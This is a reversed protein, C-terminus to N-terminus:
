RASVPAGPTPALTLLLDLADDINMAKGDREAARFAEADLAAQADTRIAEARHAMYTQLAVGKRALDDLVCCLLRVATEHHGLRSAADAGSIVMYPLDFGHEQQVEVARRLHALAQALEGLELLPNAINGHALVLNYPNGNAEARDVAARSLELCRALAAEDRAESDAGLGLLAFCLHEQALEELAPSGAERAYACSREGATHAEAYDGLAAAHFCRLNEVMSLGHADGAQTFLTEAEVLAARTEDILGMDMSIAADYYLVRGRDVPDIGRLPLTSRTM